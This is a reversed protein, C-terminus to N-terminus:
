RFNAVVDVAGGARAMRATVDVRWPGSAGIAEIESRILRQQGTRDFMLDARPLRLVQDGREGDSVFVVTASRLGLSQIQGAFTGSRTMDNLAQILAKAADVRGSKSTASVAGGAGQTAPAASPANARASAAEPSVPRASGATASVSVGGRETAFVALTPRVLVIREPVAEFRALASTALRIDAQPASAVPRGATDTVALNKLSLSLGTDSQSLEVDAFRTKYGQLASALGSAIVPKLVAVSMPGNQLRVYLAGVGLAALIVFPI